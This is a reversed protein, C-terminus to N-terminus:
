ASRPLQPHLLVRLRPLLIAYLLPAHRTALFSFCFLFFSLASVSLVCPSASFQGLSRSRLGGKSLVAFLDRFLALSGIMRDWYGPVSSSSLSLIKSIIEKGQHFPTISPAPCLRHSLAVPLKPLFLDFGAARGSRTPAPVVSPQPVRGSCGFTM